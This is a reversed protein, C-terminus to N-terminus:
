CYIVQICLEEFSTQVTIYTPGHDNKLEHLSVVLNSQELSKQLYAMCSPPCSEAIEILYTESLFESQDKNASGQEEDVQEEDKVLAHYFSSIYTMVALDNPKEIIDKADLMKPVGFHKEALDFALNLNHIPEEEVVERMDLLDPNHKNIFGCLALGDKFSDHFDKVKYQNDENFWNLLGEKATGEEFNIEQITFRHILMWIMGLTLKLNEDAIDEASITLHVDKSKLFDLANNINLIQHVRLKKTNPKPLKEGSIVEILKLLKIGDKFDAMSKIHTNVKCLHSNCWATFTKEQQNKWESNFLRDGEENQAAM